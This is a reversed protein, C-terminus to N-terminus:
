GSFYNRINKVLVNKVEDVSVGIYDSMNVVPTNIGCPNIFSFFKKDVNVNLSSGHLTIYKSVKVGVFGIKGDNTFVGPYGKKRFAKIEFYNCTDIIIQELTNVYDKVSLKYNRLDIIPYIVLQGPGHFTVSGGREIELIPIEDPIGYIHEKKTRKGCTYVPYHEGIFIFDEKLDNNIKKNFIDQKEKILDTYDKRKFDIINLM